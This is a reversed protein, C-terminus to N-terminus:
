FGMRESFDTIEERREYLQHTLLGLTLLDSILLYPRTEGVTLDQPIVITAEMLMKAYSLLENFEAADMGFQGLLGRLSNIAEDYESAFLIAAEDKTLNGELDRMKTNEDWQMADEKNISGSFGEPAALSLSRRGLATYRCRWQHLTQTRHREEGPFKHTPTPV